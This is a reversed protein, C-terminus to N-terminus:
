SIVKKTQWQDGKWRRAFFLSRVIWDLVMAMWVGLVGQQFYVALLLSFGIRFVWMSFMSISMTYRADGAARLANPLTFSSPWFAIACVCFFITCQYAIQAAQPSLNFLGIMPKALLIIILCSGGVTCYTATMLKKTYQRAATFNKAGVCQGVVTILALGVASGTLNAFTALISAIANGAIAATGFSSVIRATLLKGILFMSNEMGNPVGIQLISRVIPFSFQFRFLGQLSVAGAKDKLLLWLVVFAAVARSTLSATAAGEVGWGLGYILIANGSINIINVLIATFMSIKSNGMSRFLAAGANYIALFPYSLASLFFYVQANEMVDAEIHGYILRLLWHGFLLTFAMVVLSVAVISYVLQRAALSATKTDKRGIYQSVVVAGGTALASFSTILLVNITDVLSIGSVAAEGVSTVMITDAMGITVALLQEIILPWILALLM